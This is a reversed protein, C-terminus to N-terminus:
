RCVRSTQRSQSYVYSDSASSRSQQSHHSQQYCSRGAALARNPVPQDELSRFRDRYLDPIAVGSTRIQVSGDEGITIQSRETEIRLPEAQASPALCVLALAASLLLPVRWTM